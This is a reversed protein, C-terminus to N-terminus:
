PGTRGRLGPGRRPLDQVPDRIKQIRISQGRPAKSVRCPSVGGHELAPWNRSITWFEGLLVDKRRLGVLGSSVGGLM